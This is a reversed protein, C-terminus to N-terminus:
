DHKSHIFIVAIHLEQRLFLLNQQVWITCLHSNLPIQSMNAEQETNGHDEETNNSFSQFVM